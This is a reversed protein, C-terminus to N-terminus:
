KTFLEQRDQDINNISSNCDYLLINFWELAAIDDDKIQAPGTSLALFTPTM